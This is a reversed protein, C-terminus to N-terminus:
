ELTLLEPPMHGCNGMTLLGVRGNPRIRVWSISAHHLNLRLWAEPPLQLARCVFYRIVNAHCVIIDFSDKQQHRDARYFYNRFAAEIRSGDQYFIYEPPEWTKRPPEPPFPAGEELMSDNEIVLSDTKMRSLIHDGTQQARTMTSRVMRSYPYNLTALRDGTLKAQEIGKETLYRESDNRGALNYQGHRILIINRTAKPKIEAIEKNYRNDDEGGKSPKVLFSPERRDWNFDWKNISFPEDHSKSRHHPHPQDYVREAAQLVRPLKRDDQSCYLVGAGVTGLGM